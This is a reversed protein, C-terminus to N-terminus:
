NPHYPECVVDRSARALAKALRTAEARAENSDRQYPLGCIFAHSQDATDARVELGLTHIDAVLIACYGHNSALHRVSDWASMGVSLGNQLDEERLLYAFHEAKHPPPDKRKRFGRDPFGRYVITEDDLRLGLRPNEAHAAM